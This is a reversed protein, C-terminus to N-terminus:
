RLLGTFFPFLSIYGIKHVYKEVYTEAGIVVVDKFLYDNKDFFNKYLEEKFTKAENKYYNIQKNTKVSHSQLFESIKTLSDSFFYLWSM